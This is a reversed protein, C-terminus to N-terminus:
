EDRHFYVVNKAIADELDLLAPDFITFRLDHQPSPQPPRLQRLSYNRRNDLGGRGGVGEEGEEEEYGEHWSKAM